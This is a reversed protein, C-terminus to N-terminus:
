KELASLVDQENEAQILAKRRHQDKVAVTLRSLLQLYETQRDDPGGVLFIVRVPTGDLADWPIGQKQIGIAIFFDHYTPLKAHPIAVGLGIGTSIIQERALVAESFTHPDNLQLAAILELLAANRETAKLFVIAKPHLYASDKM